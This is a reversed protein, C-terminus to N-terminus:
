SCPSHGPDCVSLIVVCKMELSAESLKTNTRL